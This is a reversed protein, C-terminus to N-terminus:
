LLRSSVELRREDDQSIPNPIVPLADAHYIGLNRGSTEYHLTELASLQKQESRDTLMARQSLRRRRQVCDSIAPQRGRLLDIQTTSSQSKRLHM